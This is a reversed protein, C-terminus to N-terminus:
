CKKYEACVRLMALFKKFPTKDYKKYSFNKLTFKQSKKEFVRSFQLFKEMLFSKDGGDVGQSRVQSM